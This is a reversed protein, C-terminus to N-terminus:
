CWHGIFFIVTKTIKQASCIKIKFLTLANGAFQIQMAFIHKVDTRNLQFIYEM